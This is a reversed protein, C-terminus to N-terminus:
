SHRGIRLHEACIIARVQSVASELEDNVVVYDYHVIYQMEQDFEGLRRAIEEEADKGRTRLREALAERCPPKIFIFVGEPFASKVQLAGQMDIELLVDKGADLNQMVFDRPTGYYNTYVRAWELLEGNQIMSEFRSEEIFFYDRGDVEGARPKRTTASISYVLDIGTVMLNERITGKGVGSPGSVVFLIGRGLM